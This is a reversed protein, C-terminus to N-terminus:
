QLYISLNFDPHEIFLESLEWVSMTIEKDNFGDTTKLRIHTASHYVTQVLQLLQWATCTCIQGWKQPVDIELVQLMNKKGQLDLYQAYGVM